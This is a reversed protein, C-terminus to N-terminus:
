CHVVKAMSSGSVITEETVITWAGSFGFGLNTEEGFTPPLYDFPDYALLDAKASFSATIEVRM